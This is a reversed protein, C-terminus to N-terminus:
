PGLRAIKARKQARSKEEANLFYTKKAVQLAALFLINDIKQNPSEQNFPNM